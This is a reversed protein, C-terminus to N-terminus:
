TSGNKDQEVDTSNSEPNNKNNQTIESNLQIIDPVGNKLNALFPTALLVTIKESKIARLSNDISKFTMMDAALIVFQDVLGLASSVRDVDIAPNVAVEFIVKRKKDPTEVYIDAFKSGIEVDHQVAFGKGTFYEILMAQILQHLASTKGVHTYHIVSEGASKLYDIAKQTPVLFTSLKTSGLALFVQEVMGNDLMSQKLEQAYRGKLGLHDYRQTVTLSPFSAVNSLFKKSTEDLKSANNTKEITINETLPTSHFLIHEVFPKKITELQSDDVIKREIRETRILFADVNGNKVLFEGTSLKQFMEAEVGVSNALEWADHSDPMSSLLKARTNAMINRSLPRQSSFFLCVKMDRAILPIEQLIDFSMEQTKESNDIQPNFLQSAEDVFVFLSKEDIGPNGRISEAKRTEILALLLYAVLFRESQASLQDVEIALPISLLESLPFSGKCSFCQDLEEVINEIKNLSAQNYNERTQGRESKAKIAYYVDFITPTQKTERVNIVFEKIYNRSSYYLGFITFLDCVKSIWARPNINPSPPDFINIRLDNANLVVMPVYNLINRIDRKRDFVLVNCKKEVLQRLISWIVTSKGSGSAGGLFCHVMNSVPISYQGFERSGQVLRGLVIDGNTNKPLPLLPVVGSDLQLIAKAYLSNLSKSFIQRGKASALVLGRALKDVLNADIIGNLPKFVERIQQLSMREFDINQRQM